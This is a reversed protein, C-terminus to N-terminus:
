LFSDVFPHLAVAFNIGLVVTAYPSRPIMMETADILDQFYFLLWRLCRTQCILGQDSWSLLFTSM